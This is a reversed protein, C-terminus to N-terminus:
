LEQGPIYAADASEYIIMYELPWTDDDSHVLIDCGNHGAVPMYLFDQEYLEGLMSGSVNTEWVQFKRTGKTTTNPNKIYLYARVASGAGFSSTDFLLVGANSNDTGTIRKLGTSFKSGTSHDINHLTMNSTVSVDSSTFGSQRVTLTATSSPTTSYAM